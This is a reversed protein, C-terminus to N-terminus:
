FKFKMCDLMYPRILERFSASAKENIALRYGIKDSSLKKSVLGVEISYQTKFVKRLRNVGDLSFSETCIRMANSHNKWKLSGDDMYWYAIARPTLFLNIKLPVDKVMRQTKEDYTYFLNGYHRFVDLTKTQFTYRKTHKQNSFSDLSNFNGLDSEESEPSTTEIITFKPETNCCTKLVEYKHFLYEKQKEGHIARYRWTRGKTGTQLNGDGLLTGILLDKQQETLENCQNCM